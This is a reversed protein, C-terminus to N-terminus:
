KQKKRVEVQRNTSRRQRVKNRGAKDRKKMGTQKNIEKNTQKNTQKSQRQKKNHM